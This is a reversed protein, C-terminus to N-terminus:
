TKDSSCIQAFTEADCCDGAKLKTEDEPTNCHNCAEEGCGYACTEKVITGDVCSMSVSSECTSIFSDLCCNGDVYPQGDEHAICKLCADGDCGYKCATEVVVGDSCSLTKDSECKDAFLNADCCEGLVPNEPDVPTQCTEPTPDTPISKEIEEQLRIFDLPHWIQFVKTGDPDTVYNCEVEVGDSKLTKINPNYPCAEDEDPIKDCDADNSACAVCEHAYCVLNSACDANEVCEYCNHDSTDCKQNENCDIDKECEYKCANDQCFQDQGCQSDELCQVCIAAEQQDANQCYPTSSDKNACDSNSECLPECVNNSNCTMKGSCDEDGTCAVCHNSVCHTGNENYACHDDTSCEVCAEDRCVGTECDEDEVCNALCEGNHCIEGADVDCDENSSCADICKGELCVGAGSCDIDSECEPTCRDNNCTLDGDCDDDTMCEVICKEDRCVLNGDCDDDVSCEPVCQEDKCILDDLCDSNFECEPPVVCKQEKCVKDDTCDDNSTCEIDASDEVCKSDKCVKGDKCDDNSTCEADTSDDVCKSDKCVKGDKCDDNSTCETTTSDECANTEENCIQGELCAGDCPESKSSDGGCGYMSLAAAAICAFTLLSHTKNMPLEKETNNPM